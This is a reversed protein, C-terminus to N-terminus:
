DTSFGLWRRVAAEVEDLQHESLKGLRRILKAQPVTVLSQGDFVGPRLFRAKIEVEFRSGRASTTSTVLTVLVRDRDGVPVSLVLGPRVKAVYGLDVLWVEGRRPHRM